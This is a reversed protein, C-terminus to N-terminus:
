KKQVYKRITKAWVDAIFIDGNDNVAIDHGLNTNDVSQKTDLEGIVDGMKNLIVVRAKTPGPQIGGDIVYLIGEKSIDLSFPRGVLSKDFNKIFEGQLDFLQIRSNKREAVYISQNFISIGHPLNFESL